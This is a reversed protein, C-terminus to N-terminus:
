LNFDLVIPAVERVSQYGLGLPRLTEMAKVPDPDVLPFLPLPETLLISDFNTFVFAPDMTIGVPALVFSGPYLQIFYHLTDNDATLVSSYNVLYEVPTEMNIETLAVVVIGKISDPWEGHTTLIGEAGSVPELTEYADCSLLFVLLLMLSLFVSKPAINLLRNM